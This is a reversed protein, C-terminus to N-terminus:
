CTKTSPGFQRLHLCRSRAEIRDQQCIDYTNPRFFHFLPIVEGGTAFIANVILSCRGHAIAEHVLHRVIVVIREERRALSCVAHTTRPQWSCPGFEAREFLGERALVPDDPNVLDFIEVIESPIM